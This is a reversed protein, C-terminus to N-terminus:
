AARAKARHSPRVRNGARVLGRKTASGARKGAREVDGGVTKAGRKVMSGARVMGKKVDRGVTKSGRAVKTELAKGRVKISM